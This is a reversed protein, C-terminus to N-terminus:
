YYVSQILSTTQSSNAQGTIRSPSRSKTIMEQNSPTTFESVGLVEQWRKPLWQAMVRRAKSGALMSLAIIGGQASNMLGFIKRIMVLHPCLGTLLQIFWSAGLIIALKACVAILSKSPRKRIDQHPGVATPSLGTEKKLRCIQICVVILALLNFCIMIGSPVLCWAILAVYDGSFWAHNPNTVPCFRPNIWYLSSGLEAEETSQSWIIDTSSDYIPKIRSYVYENIALSPIGFCLPIVVSTIIQRKFRGSSNSDSGRAQLM